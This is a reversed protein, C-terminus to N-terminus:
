QSKIEKLTTEILQSDPFIQKGFNVYILAEQRKGEQQSLVALNNTIKDLEPVAHLIKIYLRNAEPLNGDTHLSQANNYVQVLDEFDKIEKGEDVAKKITRKVVKGDPSQREEEEYIAMKTVAISILVTGFLAFFIGPSAGILKLKLKGYEADM